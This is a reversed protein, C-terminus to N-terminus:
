KWPIETHLPSQSWPRLWPRLGHDQFPGSWPTPTSGSVTVISFGSCTGRICRQAQCADVFANKRYGVTRYRGRRNNRCINRDRQGAVSYTKPRRGSMPCFNSFYLNRGESARGRFILCFIPFHTNKGVKQHLADPPQFRYKKFIKGLEPRLDSVWETAPWRSRLVFAM